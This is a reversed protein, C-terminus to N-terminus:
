DLEPHLKERQKFGDPIPDGERLKVGNACLSFFECLGFTSCADPNRHMMGGHQAVALMNAQDDLDDLLTTYDQRTRPVVRRAFYWEPRDGIDATLRAGYLAHDEEGLELAHRLVETDLFAEGFYTAEGKKTLEGNMRDVEKKAISKPNIGPKKVVDYLIFDPPVDITVAYLGVQTDMRLKIWYNSEAEINESTTKREVVGIRGDELEVIADRKGEYIRELYTVRFQEEAAVIKMPQKQWYWGYAAFLRHLKVVWLPSPAHWAIAAYPDEGIAAAHHAKHWAEGVALAEREEDDAASLRLNYRLDHLRLCRRAAALSSNTHTPSGHWVIEGAV